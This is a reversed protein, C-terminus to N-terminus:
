WIQTHEDLYVLGREALAALRMAAYSNRLEARDFLVAVDEYDKGGLRGWLVLDGPKILPSPGSAQDYPDHDLLAAARALAERVTTFREIDLEQVPEDDAIRGLTDHIDTLTARGVRYNPSVRPTDAM